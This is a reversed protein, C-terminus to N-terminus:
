GPFGAVEIANGQLMQRAHERIEEDSFSMGAEEYAAKLETYGREVAANMAEVRVDDIQRALREEADPAREIRQAAPLEPTGYSRLNSLRDVEARHRGAEREAVAEYLARQEAVVDGHARRALFAVVVGGLVFGLLFAALTAATM